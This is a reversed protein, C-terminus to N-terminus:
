MGTRAGGGHSIWDVLGASPVLLDGGSGHAGRRLFQRAPARPVDRAHSYRWATPSEPAGPAPGTSGPGPASFWRHGAGGHRAHHAGTCPDPTRHAHRSAPSSPCGVLQPMAGAHNGFFGFAWVVGIAVPVWDCHTTRQFLPTSGAFVAGCNSRPHEPFCSGRVSAPHALQGRFWM